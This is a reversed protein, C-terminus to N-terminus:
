HSVAWLVAYKGGQQLLDTHSGDEIIRGQDIVLIRDARAATALRHAVIISTRGSTTQASADLVARETAPDLTATAEDLLVVDPHLMEARALAIIQRQGSSLGRGREGVRHNFGGPIAAVIDLAGIRRVADEIERETADPAGYAINEAVTGPFLYSEQPVQALARRWDALPFDRVDTGSATVAGSVPDYFRALLKVVTSKGAGTAGVLAVTEGPQFTATVASLAVPSSSASTPEAVGISVAPAGDPDADTAADDPRAGYSFTVNELALPGRAADAAHPSTGTDPVTTREDLLERIRDFSVTAQQWSDFIQGLQQIPGYLQGLYMTFAVLVGVSLTGEAIRAGGIAVIVATMIQSIMQMGNFYTAVLLQSRMRLRRYAESESAFHAEASPEMLHMQSVRIGGILEAFEGNVASIQARAQAHFRKSYHRFVVTILAIVPVAYFATLALSGDTAVLMAAVGILTGVSVIAQALGTQLFSSLTDIDTTMRTMIRGSLHSEFYSMGLSQLHAYSRVRLGYLLREGSRASLVTMAANALWAIIVVAFAAGAVLWLTRPDDSQIGKDVAARVLTPFSLDALVGVVLLGTVAAILWKVSAFMARLGSPITGKPEEDAPPLHELRELLEPTATVVRAAGGGGGGGRPGGVGFGGGGGGASPTLVHERPATDGLDPWLEEHSPETRSLATSGSPTESEPAPAGDDDPAMLATYSPHSLAPSLPADILSAGQDMIIVRETHEVTSQRHAVAIITVGPLNDRLNALIDAETAADIASTADDLILVRPRSLLARALAIRQRQGGSLTLGREGVVTDYGDPLRTIFEDACAMTAAHEIDADTVDAGMAINDRISLSFLFAEDFVCTVASRISSHTLESYPIHGDPTVLALHGSDPTYFAGALQVAMSKGSGAPGVVAVQEGPAVTLDFHNLVTRGGTTFTVDNFAIGVPGDPVERPATPDPHKPALALVEDLRDVGSMGMQLTVYTNALMSMISTLSSLYATFAVFGGVTMGGRLAILGGAVITVVLALNPLQSLAPQFRATLKAARMKVAYLHKALGDLVEVEHEERGFAKVVRVGSVTQEVHSTLDAASQQNAWTAAYLSTRSRNALWVILPLCALAMVTLPLDVWAMVCVTLVLQVLRSLALPSMALVSFLQGLDTISRSVIQGTVIDDQGPGDLRHLTKLLEVRVYHQSRTAMNGAAWRRLVQFAFQALAIGAMAWAIRTVSGERAGTAIDVATGTLGPLSTQLVAAIVATIM